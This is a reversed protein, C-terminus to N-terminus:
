QSVNVEWFEYFDSHRDKIRQKKIELIEDRTQNENFKMRSTMSNCSNCVTILNRSEDSGNHSRPVIHEISLQLWNKFDRGDFGCYQCQFNCKKHTEFGWGALSGKYIAM